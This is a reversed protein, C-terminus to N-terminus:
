ESAERDLVEVWKVAVAAIQILESRLDSPNDTALAEFVEELLIDAFTVMNYNAHSDTTRKAERELEGYNLPRPVSWEGYMTMSPWVGPGTGDPQRTPEGWKEDQSQREAQVDQLVYYTDDSM